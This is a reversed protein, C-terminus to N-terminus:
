IEMLRVRQWALTFALSFNFTLPFLSAKLMAGAGGQFYDSNESLYELQLLVLALWM